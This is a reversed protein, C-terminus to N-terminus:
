ISPFSLKSWGISQVIKHNLMPITRYHCSMHIKITSGTHHLPLLPTPPAPLLNFVGEWICFVRFYMGEWLVLYLFHKWHTSPSPHYLLLFGWFFGAATRKLSFECNELVKNGIRRCLFSALQFVIAFAFPVFLMKVKRFFPLKKKKKEM